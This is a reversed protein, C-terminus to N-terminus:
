NTPVKKGSGGHISFGKENVSEFPVASETGYLRWPKRPEPGGMGCALRRAGVPDASIM